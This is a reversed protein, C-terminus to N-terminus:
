IWGRPRRTFVPEKIIGNQNFVEAPSDHFKHCNGCYKKDIDNKNHSVRLCTLCIIAMAEAADLGLKDGKQMYVYQRDKIKM